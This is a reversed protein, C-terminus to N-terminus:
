PTDARIASKGSFIGGEEILISGVEVDGMVQGGVLIALQGQAVINGKVKGSVLVDHGRLDAELNAAKGVIINGNTEISGKYEGEVRVGGSCKLHGDFAAGPGLLTEFKDTPPNRRFM